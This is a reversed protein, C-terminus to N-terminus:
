TRSDRALCVLCYLLNINNIKKKIYIFRSILFANDRSIRVLINNDYNYARPILRKRRFIYYTDVM